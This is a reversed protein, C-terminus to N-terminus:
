LEIRGLVWFLKEVQHQRQDSNISERTLTVICKSGNVVNPRENGHQAVNEPYSSEIKKEGALISVLSRIITTVVRRISINTKLM